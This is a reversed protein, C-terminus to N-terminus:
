TRTKKRIVGKPKQAIEKWNFVRESFAVLELIRESLDHSDLNKWRDVAIEKSYCFNFYRDVTEEGLDQAKLFDKHHDNIYVINLDKNYRSRDGEEGGNEYEPTPPQDGSKPLQHPSHPLEKVVWFNTAASKKITKEKDGDGVFQFVTVTLATIGEQNSAQFHATRKMDDTLRGLPKGGLKWYYILSSQDRIINGNIDYPRATFAEVTHFAVKTSEPSIDVKFM